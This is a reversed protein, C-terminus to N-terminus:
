PKPKPPTAMAALVGGVDVVEGNAQRAQGPKLDAPCDGLLTMRRDQVVTPTKRAPDMEIETHVRTERLDPSMVTVTRSTRAAGAAKDCVRETKMGGDSTRTRSSTCGTTPAAAAARRDKFAGLTSRMTEAGMCMLVTDSSLPAQRTVEMKFLRPTPLFRAMAADSSPSVPLPPDAGMMALGGLAAALGLLGKAIKM